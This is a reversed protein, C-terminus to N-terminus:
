DDFMDMDIDMDDMFTSAGDDDSMDALHEFLRGRGSQKYDKAEQEIERKRANIRSLASSKSIPRPSRENADFFSWQDVIYKDAREHYGLGYFTITEPHDPWRESDMITLDIFIFEGYNNYDESM